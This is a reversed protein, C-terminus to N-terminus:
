YTSMAHKNFWCSLAFQYNSGRETKFIMLLSKHKLKCSDDNRPALIGKGLKYDVINLIKGDLM